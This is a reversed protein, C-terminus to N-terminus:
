QLVAKGMVAGSFVEGLTYSIYFKGDTITKGTVSMGWPSVSQARSWATAFLCCILLLWKITNFIKM